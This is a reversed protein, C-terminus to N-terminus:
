DSQIFLRFSYSSDHQGWWGTIRLVVPGPQLDLEFVTPNAAEPEVLDEVRVEFEPGTVFRGVRLTRPTAEGDFRLVLSERRQVKLEQKPDRPGFVDADRAVWSYSDQDGRVEGSSSSLYASPPRPAQARDLVSKPVVSSGPTSRDTASRRASVLPLLVLTLGAVALITRRRAGSPM